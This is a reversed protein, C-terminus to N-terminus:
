RCCCAVGICCQAGRCERKPAKFMSRTIIPLLDAAMVHIFAADSKWATTRLLQSVPGAGATPSGLVESKSDARGAAAPSPTIPIPPPLNPPRPHDPITIGQM